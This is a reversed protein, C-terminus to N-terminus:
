GPYFMANPDGTLIVAMRKIGLEKGEEDEFYSYGSLSFLRSM